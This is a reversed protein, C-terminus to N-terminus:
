VTNPSQDSQGVAITVALLLFCSYLSFGTGVLVIQTLILTNWVGEAGETILIDKIWELVPVLSFDIHHTGSSVGVRRMPWPLIDVTFFRLVNAWSVTM